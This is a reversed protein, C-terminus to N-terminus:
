RIEPGGVRNDPVFRDHAPMVVRPLSAANMIADAPIIDNRHLLYAVLSYVEHPELSGPATQPMARSIYDYLTTAYPWYNGITRVMGTSRGFDFDAGADTGVLRDFPGEVGTPGHCVQCKEAFIREGKRVTGSGPPLGHGDPSVDIDWAALLSDPAPRGIGFSAPGNAPPAADGATRGSTPASPAPDSCASAILLLIIAICHIMRKM